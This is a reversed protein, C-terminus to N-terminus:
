SLLNNLTCTGEREQRKLEHHWGFTYEPEVLVLRNRCYVVLNVLEQEPWLPASDIDYMTSRLADTAITFVM